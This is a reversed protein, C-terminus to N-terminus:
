TVRNPERGELISMTSLLVKYACLGALSVTALGWPVSGAGTGLVAWALGGAVVAMSGVVAMAVAARFMFRYRALLQLQRPTM